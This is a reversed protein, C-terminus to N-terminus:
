APRRLGLGAAVVKVVDDDESIELPFGPVNLVKSKLEVRLKREVISLDFLSAASGLTSKALGNLSASTTGSKMRALAPAAIALLMDQLSEAEVIDQAAAARKLCRLVDAYNAQLDLDSTASFAAVEEAAATPKDSISGATQALYYSEITGRRLVFCGQSELLDLLAALRKQM